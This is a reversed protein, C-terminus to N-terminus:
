PALTPLATAHGDPAPLMNPTSAFDACVTRGYSQDGSDYVSYTYTGAAYSCVYSLMVSGHGTTVRWTDRRADHTGQVPLYGNVGNGAEQACLAQAGPGSVVLTTDRGPVALLCPPGEATATAAAAATSQAAATAQEAAAHATATAYAEETAVAGATATAQGARALATGTAAQARAARATSTARAQEAVQALHQRYTVYLALAVLGALVVLGVALFRLPRSM